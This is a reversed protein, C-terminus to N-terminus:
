SEFVFQLQTRPSSDLNEPSHSPGSRIVADSSESECNCRLVQVQDDIQIFLSIIDLSLSSRLIFLSAAYPPLYHLVNVRKAYMSSVNSPGWNFAKLKMHETLDIYVSGSSTLITSNSSKIHICTNLSPELRIKKKPPPPPLV